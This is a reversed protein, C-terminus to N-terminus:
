FMEPRPNSDGRRWKVFTSFEVALVTNARFIFLLMKRLKQQVSRNEVPVRALYLGVCLLQQVFVAKVNLHSATVVLGICRGHISVPEHIVCLRAAPSREEVLDCV